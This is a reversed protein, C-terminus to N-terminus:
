ANLMIWAQKQFKAKVFQLFSSAESPSSSVFLGVRYFNSDGPIIHASFGKQEFYKKSENANKFKQFSGVIIYFGSAIEANEISTISDHLKAQLPSFSSLENKKESYMLTTSPLPEIYSVPMLLPQEYFFVNIYDSLQLGNLQLNDHQANMWLMQIIGAALLFPLMAAAFRYKRRSLKLQNQFEVQEEINEDQSTASKIDKEKQAVLTFDIPKLGFSNLHYNISKESFFLIIGEKNEDFRGVKPLRITKKQHLLDHFYKVFNLVRIEADVYNCKLKEQVGLILIGDNSQLRQNFSFYKFPPLIIKQDPMVKAFKYGAVFGGFQPIVVCDNELLAKQLAELVIEDLIM